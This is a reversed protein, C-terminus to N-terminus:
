HVFHCKNTSLLLDTQTIECFVSFKKCGTSTSSASSNFSTDESATSSEESNSAPISPSALTGDGPRHAFSVGTDGSATSTTNAAPGPSREESEEEAFCSDLLELPQVSPKDGLIRDLEEYFPCTVRGRGSRKNSDKAEKYKARLSKIKRQCQFWSRRYGREAMEQSIGVFIVRNRYSGDLKAQISSNGWISILDSVESERWQSSEVNDDVM